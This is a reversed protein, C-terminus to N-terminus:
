FLRFIKFCYLMRSSFKRIIEDLYFKYEKSVKKKTDKFKLVKDLHIKLESVEPVSNTLTVNAFWNDTESIIKKIRNKINTLQIELQPFQKYFQKDIKGRTKPRQIQDDWMEPHIM